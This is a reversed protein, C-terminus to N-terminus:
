KDGMYCMPFTYTVQGMHLVHPVNLDSKFQCGYEPLQM